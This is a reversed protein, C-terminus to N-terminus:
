KGERIGQLVAGATEMATNLVHYRLDSYGFGDLDNKAETRMTDLTDLLKNLNDEQRQARTKVPKPPEALKYSDGKLTFVGGSPEGNPKTWSIRYKDEESEIVDLIKYGDGPETQYDNYWYEVRDGVKFRHTVNPLLRLRHAFLSTPYSKGDFKVRVLEDSWLDAPTSEEVTGRDGPYLTDYFETLEVRDGTNFKTM